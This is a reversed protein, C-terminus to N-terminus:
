SDPGLAFGELDVGMITQPISSVMLWVQYAPLGDIYTDM